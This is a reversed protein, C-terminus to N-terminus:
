SYETDIQVRAEVM